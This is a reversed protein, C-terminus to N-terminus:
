RIKLYSSVPCGVAIPSLLGCKEDRDKQKLKSCSKDKGKDSYTEDSCTHVPAPQPSPAGSPRQSPSTSTGSSPSWSPAISSSPKLSPDISSSPKLSPKQSPSWSPHISSSPKMSPKQSISPKTSPSSSPVLTVHDCKAAKKRKGSSSASSGPDMDGSGRKKTVTWDGHNFVPMPCTATPKRVAMGDKFDQSDDYSELVNNGYIDVTEYKDPYDGIVIAISGTPELETSLVEGCRGHWSGDVGFRASEEKCFVVYGNDDIRKGSLPIITDSKGDEKIKKNKGKEGIVLQYNLDQNGEEGGFYDCPIECNRKNPSYLEVFRNSKEDSPDALERVYLVLPSGIWVRPDMDQVTASENCEDPVISWQKPKWSRSPEPASLERERVARGDSFNYEIGCKDM